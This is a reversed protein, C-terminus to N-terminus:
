TGNTKTTTKKMKNTKSTKNIKTIMKREETNTHKKDKEKSNTGHEKHKM